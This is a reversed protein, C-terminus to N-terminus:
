SKVNGCSVQTSEFYIHMQHVLGIGLMVVAFRPTKPRTNSFHVKCLLLGSFVHTPCRSTRLLKSDPGEWWPGTMWTWACYADVRMSSRWHRQGWRWGFAKLFTRSSKVRSDKDECRLCLPIHGFVTCKHFATRWHFDLFTSCSVKKYIDNTFAKTEHQRRLHHPCFTIRTNDTAQIVM